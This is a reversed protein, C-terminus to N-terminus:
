PLFKKKPVRLIKDGEYFIEYGDFIHPKFFCTADRAEAYSLRLLQDYKKFLPNCDLLLEYEEDSTKEVMSEVELTCDNIVEVTMYVDFQAHVLTKQKSNM